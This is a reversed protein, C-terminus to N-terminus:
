VASSGSLCVVLDCRVALSECSCQVTQGDKLEASDESVGRKSLRRQKSKGVGRIGSPLKRREVPERIRQPPLYGRGMERERLAKM